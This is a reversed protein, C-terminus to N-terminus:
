SRRRHWRAMTVAIALAVNDKIKDFFQFYAYRWSNKVLLTGCVGWFGIIFGLVSSVYFGLKGNYDEDKDGKGNRGATTIDGWCKTAPPVGCLLSNGEYISSDNLTTLQTSSPIRGALNNYSLNLHSLSTLSSMSQPISGSLHNHSLDLTELWRLNGIESPIQGSLHNRSLNLTGLGILSSVEEPIEGELNNSSLDIINVFFVTTNYTLETGKSMLTLQEFYSDYYSVNSFGEVLSYM